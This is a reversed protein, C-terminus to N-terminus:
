FGENELQDILPKQVSDIMVTEENISLINMGIWKSAYPFKNFQGEVCDHVWLRRYSQLFKPLRSINQVRPANILIM